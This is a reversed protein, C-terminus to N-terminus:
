RSHQTTTHSRSVDLIPAGYIYSMLWRLTLTLLQFINNNIDTLHEYVEEQHFQLVCSSSRTQGDYCIESQLTRVSNVLVRHCLSPELTFPFKRIINLRTMYIGSHGKDVNSIPIDNRARMTNTETCSICVKDMYEWESTLKSPNQSPTHRGTRRLEQQYRLKLDWGSM